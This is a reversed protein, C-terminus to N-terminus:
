SGYILIGQRENGAVVNALSATAGGVRNAPSSDVVIGASDLTPDDSAPLGIGAANATILNGYVANNGATGRILIGARQNGTILNGPGSGPSSGTALSGGVTSAPSDILEIGNAGN